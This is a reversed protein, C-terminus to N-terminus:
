YSMQHVFIMVRGLILVRNIEGSYVVFNNTGPQGVARRGDRQPPLRQQARGVPVPDVLPHNAGTCLCLNLIRELSAILGKQFSLFTYFYNLIYKYKRADRCLIGVFNHLVTNKIMVFGVCFYTSTM